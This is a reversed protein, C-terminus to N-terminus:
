SFSGDFVTNGIVLKYQNSGTKKLLVVKPNNAHMYGFGSCTFTGGSKLPVMVDRDCGDFDGVITTERIVVFGNAKLDDVPAAHAASLCAASLIIGAVLRTSALIHTM